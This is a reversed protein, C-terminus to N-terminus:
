QHRPYGIQSPERVLVGRSECSILGLLFLCSVPLQMDYISLPSTPTEAGNDADYDADGGVAAEVERLVGELFSPVAM